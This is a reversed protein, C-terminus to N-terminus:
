CIVKFYKLFFWFHLVSEKYIKEECTNGKSNKQFVLKFANPSMQVDM